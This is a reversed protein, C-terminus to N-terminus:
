RPPRAVARLVAPDRLLQAVMDEQQKAHEAQAKPTMHRSDKAQIDDLTEAPPRRSGDPLSDAGWPRTAENPPAIAALVTAARQAESTTPVDPMILDLAGLPDPMAQAKAIKDEPVGLRRAQAAGREFLRDAATLGRLIEPDIAAVKAEKELQAIRQQLPKQANAIDKQYIDLSRLAKVQEESLAAPAQPAPAQAPPAAAPGAQPQETPAAAAPTAPPVVLPDVM